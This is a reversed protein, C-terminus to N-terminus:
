QETKPAPLHPGALNNLQYALDQAKDLLYGRVFKKDADSIPALIADRVAETLPQSVRITGGGPTEVELSIRVLTDTLHNM